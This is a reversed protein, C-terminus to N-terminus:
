GGALAALGLRLWRLQPNNLADPFRGALADDRSLVIPDGTRPEDLPAFRLADSTVTVLPCRVPWQPNWVAWESWCGDADVERREVSSALLDDEDVVTIWWPLTYGDAEPVLSALHAPTLGSIGCREGLVSVLPPQPAPEHEITEVAALIQALRAGIRWGNLVLPLETVVEWEGRGRAEVCALVPEAHGALADPVRVAAHGPSTEIAPLPHTPSSVHPEWYGSDNGPFIYNVLAHVNDHGAHVLCIEPDDPGWRGTASAITGTLVVASGDLVEFTFAGPSRHIIADLQGAMRLTWRPGLM